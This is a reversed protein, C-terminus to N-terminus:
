AQERVGPDEGEGSLILAAVHNAAEEQISPLVHSYIDLTIGISAHGLREAVVKPHTGATFSTSVSIGVTDFATDETDTPQM